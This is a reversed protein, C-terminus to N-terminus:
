RLREFAEEDLDFEESWSTFSAPYSLHPVLRQLLAEYLPARLEPPREALPM